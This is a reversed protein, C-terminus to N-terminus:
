WATIMGRSWRLRDDDDFGQTSVRSGNKEAVTSLLEILLPDLTSALPQALGL